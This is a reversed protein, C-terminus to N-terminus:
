NKDHYNVIIYTPMVFGTKDDSTQFKTMPQTLQEYRSMTKPLFLRRDCM